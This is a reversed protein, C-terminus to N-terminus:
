ITVRGCIIDIVVIDLVEYLEACGLALTLWFSYGAAIIFGSREMSELIFQITFQAVLVLPDIEKDLALRTLYGSPKTRRERTQRWSTNSIRGGRLENPYAFRM